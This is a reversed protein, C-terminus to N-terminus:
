RPPARARWRHPRGGDTCRRRPPPGPRRPRAPRAPRGPVPGALGAAAAAGRLVGRFRPGGELHDVQQLRPRRRRGAARAPEVSEAVGEHHDAAVPQPVDVHVDVVGAGGDLRADLRSARVPDADGVEPEPVDVGRPAPRGGRSRACRATTATTGPSPRAPSHASAPAVVTSARGPSGGALPSITWAMRRAWARSTTSSGLSASSRCVAAAAASCARASPTRTARMGVREATWPMAASATWSGSRRKSSSTTAM